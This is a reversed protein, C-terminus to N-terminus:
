KRYFSEEPATAQILANRLAEELSVERILIGGSYSGWTDNPVKGHEQELITMVESHAMKLADMRQLVYDPVKLGSSYGFFEEGSQTLLAAWSEEYIRGYREVLGSELGIYYEADSVNNKADMARNRAGDFTEKDYPTEPVNSASAYGEVEVTAGNKFFERIVKEAVELKRKSTSGVIYKM